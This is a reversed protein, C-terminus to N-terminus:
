GFTPSEFGAALLPSTAQPARAISAPSHTRSRVSAALENIQMELEVKADNALGTARVAFGRAVPTSMVSPSHDAPCFQSKRERLWQLSIPSRPPAVGPCP